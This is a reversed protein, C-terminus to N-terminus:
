FACLNDIFIVTTILVINEINTEITKNQYINEGYKKCELYEIKIWNTNINLSKGVVAM